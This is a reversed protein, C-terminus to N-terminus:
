FVRWEAGDYILLVSWYPINLVFTAAGIINKGNGNITVAYVNANSGASVLISDGIAPSAPLTATIAASLTGCSYVMGALANFSATKTEVAYAGGNTGLVKWEIGDSVLWVFGRATNIVRTSAADITSAQCRLTIANTSVSDNKVVLQAQRNDGRPDPLVVAFAGATPNALVMEWPKAVYAAKIRSIEWFGGAFITEGLRDFLKELRGELLDLRADSDGNTAAFSFDRPRV